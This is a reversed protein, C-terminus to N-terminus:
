LTDTLNNCLNQTGKKLKVRCKFKQKQKQYQRRIEREKERIGDRLEKLHYFTFGNEKGRVNEQSKFSPVKVTGEPIRFRVM